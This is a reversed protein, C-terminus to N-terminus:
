TKQSFIKMLSQFKKPLPSTITQTIDPTKFSISSLHIPIYSKTWHDNKQEFKTKISKPKYDSGILQKMYEMIRNKFIEDTKISEDDQIKAYITM